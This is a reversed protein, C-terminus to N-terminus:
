VIASDGAGFLAAREKEAGEPQNLGQGLGSPRSPSAGHEFPSGGENVVDARESLLDIGVRPTGPSNRGFM